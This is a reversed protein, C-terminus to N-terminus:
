DDERCFLLDLDSKIGERCYNGAKFYAQGCIVNDGGRNAVDYGNFRFGKDGLRKWAELKKLMQKCDELDVKDEDPENEIFDILTLIVLDLASSKPEEVVSSKSEEVVDDWEENLEALSSYIAIGCSATGNGVAVACHKEIM